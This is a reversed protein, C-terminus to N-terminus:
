FVRAWPQNQSIVQRKKGVRYPSSGSKPDCSTEQVKVQRVGYLYSQQDDLVQFNRNYTDIFLIINADRSNLIEKPLSLNRPNSWSENATLDAYAVRHLNVYIAVEDPYDVDYVEYSLCVDHSSAPFNYFVGTAHNRTGYLIEGNM